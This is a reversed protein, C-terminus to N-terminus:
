FLESFEGFVGEGLVIRGGPSPGQVAMSARAQGRLPLADQRIGVKWPGGVVQSWCAQDGGWTPYLNSLVQCWLGTGLVYKRHTRDWGWEEADGVRRPRNGHCCPSGRVTREREVEGRAM